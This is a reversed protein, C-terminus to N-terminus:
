DGNNQIFDQENLNLITCIKKQLDPSLKHFLKLDLVKKNGQCVRLLPCLAGYRDRKKDVSKFVKLAEILEDKNMRNDLFAALLYHMDIMDQPEFCELIEKLHDQKPEKDKQFVQAIIQYNGHMLAVKFVNEGFRYRYEELTSGIGVPNLVMAQMPMVVFALGFVLYCSYIFRRM